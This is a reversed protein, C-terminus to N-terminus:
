ELMERAIRRQAEYDNDAIAHDMALNLKEQRKNEAIEEETIGHREMWELDLNANRLSTLITILIGIDEYPIVHMIGNCLSKDESDQVIGITFTGTPDLPDEPQIAIHRSTGEAIIRECVKITNM